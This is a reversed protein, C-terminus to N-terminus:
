GITVTVPLSGANDGQCQELDNISFELYGDSRSIFQISGAATGTRNEGLRYLLAGYPYDPDTKCTTNGGWVPEGRYGQAGVYQLNADPRYDVTWYRGLSPAQITVWTGAPAWINGQWGATASVDIQHTEARSVKLPPSSSAAQASVTSAMILAGAILVAGVLLRVRSHM